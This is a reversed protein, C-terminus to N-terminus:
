DSALDLDNSALDLEPRARFWGVTTCRGSRSHM